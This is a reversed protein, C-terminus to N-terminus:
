LGFNSRSYHRREQGSRFEGSVNKLITKFGRHACHSTEPVRYTLNSFSINIKDSQGFKLHELRNLNGVKQYKKQTGIYEMYKSNQGQEFNVNEIGVETMKASKGM